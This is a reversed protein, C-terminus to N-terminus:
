KKNDAQETAKKAANKADERLKEQVRQTQYDIDGELTDLTPKFGGGHGDDKVIKELDTLRASADADSSISVIDNLNIHTSSIGAVGQHTDMFNNLKGAAEMLQLKKEKLVEAKRADLKAQANAAAITDGAAQARMLEANYASWKSDTKWISAVNDNYLKKYEKLTAETHKKQQYKNDAGLYDHVGMNIGRAADTIHGGIVGRLTGGHAQAYADRNVRAQMVSKNVDKNLKSADKLNHVDKAGWVNRAFTSGAGGVASLGKQLINGDTANFNKAMNGVVSAGTLGTWSGMAVARKAAAGIVGTEKIGLLDFIMKPAEKGFALLGYILIVTAVLKMLSLGSGVAGDFITAVVGPVLSILFVIIYMVALFMFTELYVKVLTDIWTKRLGKKNPLLELTVPIPAILQVIAMKGVRKALNLCFSLIFFLLVIGAVTTLFPTYNYKENTIFRNFASIGEGESARKYADCYEEFDAPKNQKESATGGVEGACDLATYDSNDPYLFATYISSVMVNGGNDVASAASTGDEITQGGLILNAIVGSDLIVSQLSYLKTFLMPSLSIIVLAIVVDKVFASAGVKKDKVKDPDIIYNLLNFALVFVMVIGLITYIRMTFRQVIDENLITANALFRFVGYAAQVLSYIGKDILFTLSKMGDILFNATTFLGNLM